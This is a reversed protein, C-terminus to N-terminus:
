LRRCIYMYFNVKKVSFDYNARLMRSELFTAQFSTGLSVLVWIHIKPSRNWFSKSIQSFCRKEHFALDFAMGSRPHLRWGGCILSHEVLPHSAAAADPLGSQAADRVALVTWRDLDFVQGARRTGLLSMSEALFWRAHLKKLPEGTTSPEKM